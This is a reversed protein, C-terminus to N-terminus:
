KEDSLAYEVAQDLTLSQGKMWASAFGEEGLAQRVEAMRRDHKPCDKPPLPLGISERLRAAAGLLRAARDAREEAWDLRTLAELSIAIRGEEGLEWRLSLSETYLARASALEGRGCALWGLNQLSDAVGSKFGLKRYVALNEEYLAQAATYDGKQEVLVAISSLVNATGRQDGAERYLGLCEEYLTRAVQDNGEADAMNGQNMLVDAVAHRNGLERYLTLSEAYFIRAAAYDGQDSTVNGMNNLSHAIGLKDGIRRRLTLSEEYLARAAAFDSQHYALGGACSLATARVEASVEGERALASAIHRRGESLYGRVIWFHWLARTLRLGPEAGDAAERCWALATRLNDHEAELREMWGKQQETRLHPLAAEALALFYDRHRARLAEREGSEVLRDQAYQRVTELFRYRPTEGQADAVVLSKDVLALLLELADDPAIPGGSCVSEAAELTWGGSFVSLRRLLVREPADLLDYSWDLTARLTQQRPLATRSGGVLLRFVNDLRQHIQEVSLGRVRAAALILALPIGDLRACVQALAPANRNTVAFSPSAALAREIFLSAAEYQSLSEPTPPGAAPDPLSLSPVPYTTEGGIGLGQRSTALLRLGPAARLLAEALAACAPLLHECNDLVLLLHKPKLYEELTQTIDRGADERVGLAAAVAGPVRDADALAALEVLWVGHPYQELLDAAVQLSLRTKGCGGSGTLTLLRTRELLRGAEAMEKERGIFNTLQLPLNNPLADLSLLPPFDTPLGPPLLQYVREPRQLDRLKQEGLDKFGADPPLGDRVLEFTAASLLTQGGHGIARLRACRNVAQGYYDGDRLEAEGTHLAIRVRVPTEPPWEEAHFAQQLACAAAVADTARAFVAFLSDGEGRSKILAGGQPSLVSAALTEYRPIAQAMVQPRREWLRSSGELDTLLFTLTGAPLSM